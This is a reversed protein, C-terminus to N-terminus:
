LKRIEIVDTVIIRDLLNNEIDEKLYKVDIGEEIANIRGRDSIRLTVEYDGVSLDHEILEIRENVIDDRNYISIAYKISSKSFGRCSDDRLMKILDILSNSVALTEADFEDEEDILHIGESVQNLLNYDSEQDNRLLDEYISHELYKM